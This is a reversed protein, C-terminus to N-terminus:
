HGPTASRIWFRKFCYVGVSVAFIMGITGIYTGPHKLITWILSSDKDNDKITFSHIPKSANIMDKYLQTFAVEPVNTLKQLYPQTWNRSFDQWIRFDLTSINITNINAANLSVSMVM